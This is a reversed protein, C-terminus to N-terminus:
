NKIVKKRYVQSGSVLEVWYIGSPLTALSISTVNTESLVQQGQLSYLNVQEGKLSFNVRDKAPNPYVRLEKQTLENIPGLDSRGNSSTKIDLSIYIVDCSTVEKINNTFTVLKKNRELVNAVDPEVISLIGQKLSKVVDDNSDYCVVKFGKAIAAVASCIGLHTLGCFGILPKTM